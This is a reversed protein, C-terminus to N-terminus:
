TPASLMFGSNFASARTDADMRTAPTKWMPHNAANMGAALDPTM